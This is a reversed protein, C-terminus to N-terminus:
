NFIENQENPLKIIYNMHEAAYKIADDVFCMMETTTLGSTNKYTKLVEGTTPNVIDTQLFLAKMLDKCQENTRIEDFGVDNLAKKFDPILCGHLYANQNNSRRKKKKSITILVEKGEFMKIDNDFAKRGKIKLLGNEINGFYELKM